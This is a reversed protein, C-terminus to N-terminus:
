NEPLADIRAQVQAFSGGQPDLLTMLVGWVSRATAIDGAEAYAAGSYFLAEGNEPEIELVRRYITAAEPPVTGDPSGALIINAQQVLVQPNGPALTEARNIAQRAEKLRGLVRYSQSLQMWGELDGPEQELREALQSVMGEIMALQDVETM